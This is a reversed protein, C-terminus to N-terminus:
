SCQHQKNDRSMSNDKTGEGRTTSTNTCAVVGTHTEQKKIIKCEAAVTQLSDINLNILNLVATDPMGLLAQRNGPVVFFTCRITINKFKIQVMCTGLQTIHTGNYM